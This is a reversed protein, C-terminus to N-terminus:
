ASRCLEGENRARMPKRKKEATKMEASEIGVFECFEDVFWRPLETIEEGNTLDEYSVRYYSAKSMEKEEERRFAVLRSVEDVPLDFSLDPFTYSMKLLSIAGAVSDERYVHMVKIPWRMWWRRHNSLVYPHKLFSWLGGKFEHVVDLEPHSNLASVLMKTGTRPLALIVFPRLM